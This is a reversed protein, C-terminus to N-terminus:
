LLVLGMRIGTTLAAAHSSAPHKALISAVHSRVTQDPIGLKWAIIKNVAGEAMM